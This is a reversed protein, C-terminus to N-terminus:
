LDAAVPAVRRPASTLNGEAGNPEGLELRGERAPGALLRREPVVLFGSRKAFHPRKLEGFPALPSVGSRSPSAVKGPKSHLLDRDMM